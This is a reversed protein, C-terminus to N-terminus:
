ASMRKVLRGEFLLERRPPLESDGLNLLTLLTEVASSSIAAYNQAVTTLPPCTFRAFPHDDMGAVRLANQPGGGVRYGKEYCAALFGIALRDNSCLITNTEFRRKEIAAMGQRYGIDEFAWGEGDVSIVHPEYGLEEMTQLYSQRRKNANPNAPTRMEFFCPPEGSRCLYEVIDRAYQRNDAGVFGRGMGSINSDFLVTPVEECFAELASRDSQRGLPAILVGAPRFSRLNDLNEVEQEPRGQSNLLIPRYGTAVILNEINRAIEAFFPDVLFPVVLGISKTLKRNQNIAYINPRYNHQELAQEIRTRTSKRVSGPDNFYKSVTPRSIGSIAAFEEMTRIKPDNM